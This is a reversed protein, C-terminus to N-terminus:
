LKTGGDAASLDFTMAGTVALGQLPGIAGILRLATGPNAYVVEMHRISGGNALKECFCGMARDEISLNHADHSFTHTSNWGEGGNRVLRRYVEAPPAKINTVVKVTFGGTGSDAVDAFAPSLVMGFLLGALIKNRM